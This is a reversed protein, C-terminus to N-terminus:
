RRRAGSRVLFVEASRASTGSNGGLSEQLLRTLESNRYPIHKSSADALATIVLGLNMLSQNIKSGEVLADGTAGTKSARESGALDVLNLKAGVTTTREAGGELREVRKQELRITFVAHSRSSHENMQTARVRRVSNGQDILKYVDAEKRCVLECLGDVYVGLKPHERLKLKHKDSPNLLDRLEENYIEMFSATM